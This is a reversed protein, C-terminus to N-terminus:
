VRTNEHQSMPHVGHVDGEHSLCQTGLFSVGDDGDLWATM